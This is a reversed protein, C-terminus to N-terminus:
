TQTVIERIVASKLILRTLLASESPIRPHPSRVNVRIGSQSFFWESSLFNPRPPYIQSVANVKFWKCEKSKIKYKEEILGNSGTFTHLIAPRTAFLTSVLWVGGRNQPTQDPDTSSTWVQSESSTSDTRYNSWILLGVCADFILRSGGRPKAPQAPAVLYVNRVQVSVNPRNGYMQSFCLFFLNEVSSESRKCWLFHSRRQNTVKWQTKKKNQNTIEKIQM